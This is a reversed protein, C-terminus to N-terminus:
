SLSCRLAVFRRRWRNCVSVVVAVICLLLARTVLFVPNWCTRCFSATDHVCSREYTRVAIDQQRRLQRLRGAGSSWRSTFIDVGTGSVRGAAVVVLRCLSIFIHWSFQKAAMSHM